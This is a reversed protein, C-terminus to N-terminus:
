PTADHAALDSSARVCSSKPTGLPLPRNSGAAGTMFARAHHSRCGFYNTGDPGPNVTYHLSISGLANLLTSGSLHSLPRFCRNALGDYHRLASGPTRIGGEGGDMVM